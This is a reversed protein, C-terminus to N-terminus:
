CGSPMLVPCSPLAPHMKPCSGAHSCLQGKPVTVQTLRVLEGSVEAPSPPGPLKRVHFIEVREGPWMGRCLQDPSQPATSEAPELYDGARRQLRGAPHCSHRACSGSATPSRGEPLRRGALSTERSNSCRSKEGQTKLPQQQAPRLSFGRTELHSLFSTGKCKPMAATAVVSMKLLSLDVSAVLRTKSSRIEELTLHCEAAPLAIWCVSKTSCQNDSSYFIEWPMCICLGFFNM